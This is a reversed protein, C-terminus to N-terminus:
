SFYDATDDATNNSFRRQLQDSTFKVFSEHQEALKNQLVTNFKDRVTEEHESVIHRVIVDVQSLTYLHEPHPQQSLLSSDSVSSTIFSSSMSVASSSPKVDQSTGAAATASHHWLASSQGHSTYLSSLAPYQGSSALKQAAEAFATSQLSTTPSCTRRSNSPSMLEKTLCMRKPPSGRGPSMLPDFEHTRKLTAGCAM